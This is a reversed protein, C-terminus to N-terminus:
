KSIYEFAMKEICAKRAWEQSAFNHEHVGAKSNQSHWRGTTHYQIFTKM